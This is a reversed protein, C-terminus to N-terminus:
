SQNPRKNEAALKVTEGIRKQRTEPRRASKIWLLIMRKSSPSFREFNEFAGADEKFSEQLDAPIVLNQVDTLIDWTGTQNAIDILRQGHETMLGLKVMKVVREKNSISWVSNPKRRSFTLYYSEHDRKKAKSDIWGYCLAEEVAEDLTVSQVLSKKHYMILWVTTEKEHNEGLWRRWEQRNRACVAKRGDKFEM